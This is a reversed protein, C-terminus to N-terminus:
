STPRSVQNEARGQFASIDFLWVAVYFGSGWYMGMIIDPGLLAM